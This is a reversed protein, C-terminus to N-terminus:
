KEGPLSSLRPMKCEAPNFHSHAAPLYQMAKRRWLNEQTAQGQISACIVPSLIGKLAMPQDRCQQQQTIARDRLETEVMGNASFGM